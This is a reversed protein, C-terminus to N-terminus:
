LKRESEVLVRASEITKEEEATRGPGWQYPHEEIGTCGENSGEKMLRRKLRDMRGNCGSGSEDGKVGLKTEGKPGSGWDPGKM